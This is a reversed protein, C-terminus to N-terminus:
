PLENAAADTSAPTESQSRICRGWGVRADHLKKELDENQFQVEEAQKQFQDREAECATLVSEKQDIAAAQAPQAHYFWLGLWLASALVFGLAFMLALETVWV